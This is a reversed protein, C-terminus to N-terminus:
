SLPILLVCKLISCMTIIIQHTQYVYQGMQNGIWCLKPITDDMIHYDGLQYDGLLNYGLKALLTNLQASIEVNLLVLAEQGNIYCRGWWSFIHPHMHVSITNALFRM